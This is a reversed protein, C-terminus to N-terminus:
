LYPTLKQQRARKLDDAGTKIFSWDLATINNSFPIKAADDFSPLLGKKAKERWLQKFAGLNAGKEVVEILFEALSKDYRSLIGQIIDWEISSIRFNVGMKHFTKKLYSIRKELTKKDTREVMEFPTHAKPIFTSASLTLDFAGSIKKLENKMEQVINILEEIDEDNETPLGLMAYIKIGKLGGKKACLVTELVQKESLDKGILNRLRQSGAELAITATKQKCKVLTQILDIDALDARLSSISLEIDQTECKKSIYEIIKKFDPHGAVYAGLLALKNTHALGLDIAEIIKEYKVFRTPINLWSALCFNCMKPCGRELEVIFTDKFFSKDSLITTYIVDDSLDDRKIVVEKKYKPVYIGEIESLKKLIEDRSINNKEKLVEFVDALVVKEGISIFDFFDEYPKPNSMTVPGGVFIFPDDEGRDNALLPFGYKELMKIITLIDLEFSMSFGMCDVAKYPIQTIKTDQYIREVFLDPNLDLDKFIALYGLSAMAFSEPAGYAFWVNLKPDKKEIRQYLFKEM